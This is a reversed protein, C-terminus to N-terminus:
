DQLNDRGKLKEWMRCEGEKEGLKKCNQGWCGSLVRKSWPTHGWEEGTGRTVEGPAPGSCRQVTASGPCRGMVAHGGEQLAPPPVCPVWPWRQPMPHSRIFWRPVAQERQLGHRGWGWGERRVGVSWLTVSPASCAFTGHLTPAWGLTFHGCSFFHFATFDLLTVGWSHPCSSWGHRATSKLTGRRSDSVHM